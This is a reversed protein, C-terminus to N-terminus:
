RDVALDPDMGPSKQAIRVIDAPHDDANVVTSRNVQPINGIYRIARGFRILINEVTGSRCRM